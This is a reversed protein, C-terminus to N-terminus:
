QNELISSEIKFLNCNYNKKREMILFEIFPIMKLSYDKQNKVKSQLTLGVIISKANFKDLPKNIDEQTLDDKFYDRYWCVGIKSSLLVDNM